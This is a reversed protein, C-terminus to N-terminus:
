KKKGTEPPAEKVDAAAKQLDEVAQADMEYISADGERKAFYQTGQRTLSVKEVRKGDNSIVTAQFVPDGGGGKEPFKSASLDRLKDILTQVSANDMTKPGSM